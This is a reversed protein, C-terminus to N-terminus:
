TVGRRSVSFSYIARYGHSVNGRFKEELLERLERHLQSNSSRDRRTSRMFPASTLISSRPPQRREPDCVLDPPLVKLAVERKLRVDLARYVVGM